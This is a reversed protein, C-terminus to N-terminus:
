FHVSFVSAATGVMARVTECQRWEKMIIADLMALSQTLKKLIEIRPLATLDRTSIMPM